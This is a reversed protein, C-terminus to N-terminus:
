LYFVLVFIQPPLCLFLDYCFDKIIISQRHIEYINGYIMTNIMVPGVVLPIYTLASHDKCGIYRCLIKVGYRNSKHLQNTLTLFHLTRRPSLRFWLHPRDALHPYLYIAVTTPLAPSCHPLCGLPHHPSLPPKLVSHTNQVITMALLTPHGLLLTLRADCHSPVMWTCARIVRSRRM